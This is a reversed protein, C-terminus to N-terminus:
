HGLNLHRIVKYVPAQLTFEQTNNKSEKGKFSGTIWLLFCKECAQIVNHYSKYLYKKIYNQSQLLSFLLFIFCRDLLFFYKFRDGKPLFSLIFKLFINTVITSSYWIIWVRSFIVDLYLKKAFNQRWKMKATFNVSYLHLSNHRIKHCWFLSYFVRRGGGGGVFFWVFM